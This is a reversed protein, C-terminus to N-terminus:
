ADEVHDHHAILEDRAERGGFLLSALHWTCMLAGMAFGLPLLFRTPWIPVNIPGMVIERRAFSRLADEWTIWALAGYFVACAFLVFVMLGIRAARPFHDFFMDVAISTRTFEVLALPLFVSAVMYYFAVIELTGQIPQNFAYKMFVDATVHLMMVLLILGALDALINSFWSLSAKGRM